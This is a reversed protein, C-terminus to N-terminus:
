RQLGGRSFNNELSVQQQGKLPDLLSIPLMTPLLGYDISRFTYLDTNILRNLGFRMSKMMKLYSTSWTAFSHFTIKSQLQDVFLSCHTITARKRERDWEREREREWERERERAWPGRNEGERGTPSDQAEADNRRREIESASAALFIM